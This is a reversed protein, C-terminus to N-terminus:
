ATELTTPTSSSASRDRAESYSTLHVLEDGPECMDALTLNDLAVAIARNLKHWNGRLCCHDEHECQGPAEDLCDTIAIPGDLATIIQAVTIERPSRGLRYGGKVGRHSVLLDAKALLKLIKAVMPLPLRTEEALQRATTSSEPASGALSTLLVIGYDTQRNIRLM